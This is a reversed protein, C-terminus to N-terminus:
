SRTALTVFPALTNTGKAPTLVTKWKPKGNVRMVFKFTMEDYIFKVHISSTTNLGGKRVLAYESFDGFIIDGVTGLTEAQEVPVLPKGMLSAYPNGSIGNPPLFLPVGATGANLTMSLLQPEVDQNHYWQAKGRSRGWCRSWMKIINEYLLTKAEQGTEKAVSVTAPDGIIGKCQVGGQGTLIEEELKYVFEQPMQEMILSELAPADNLLRDTVYCLAKLDTVRCEWMGLATKSSTAPDVEGARYARLGGWRSGAARNSDEVYPVELSDSYEGIDYVRCNNVIEGGTFIKKFVENSRTPSVLFGGDAPVNASAGSAAQMVSLREDVVGAGNFRGYPTGAKAVAVLFEGTTAFEKRNQTTEKQTFDVAKYNQSENTKVREEFAKQREVTEEVEAIALDIKDWESKEDVSMNRNEAKITALIAEQRAILAARKQLMEQMSM